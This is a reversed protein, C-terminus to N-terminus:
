IKLVEIAHQNSVSGVPEKAFVTISDGVAIDTAKLAIKSSNDDNALTIFETTNDYTFTYLSTNGGMFGNIQIVGNTNSVVKGHVSLSNAFTNAQIIGQRLSNLPPAFIGGKVPGNVAQLFFLFALVFMVALGAIFGGAASIFIYVYRARNKM